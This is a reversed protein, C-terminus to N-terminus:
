PIIRGETYTFWISITMLPIHIDTLTIEHPKNDPLQHLDLSSFSWIKSETRNCTRAFKEGLGDTASQFDSISDFRFDSLFRFSIQFFDSLFRFSIQFFDSLFRFSIQFFDSLFRFSIQDWFIIECDWSSVQLHGASGLRLRLPLISHPQIRPRSTSLPWISYYHIYM